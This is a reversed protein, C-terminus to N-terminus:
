IQEPAAVGRRPGVVVQVLLPGPGELEGECVDFPDERPGGLVVSLSRIAASSM